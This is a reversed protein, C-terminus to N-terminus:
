PYANAHPKQARVTQGNGPRPTRTTPRESAVSAWPRARHTRLMQPPLRAVRALKRQDCVRTRPSHVPVQAFGCPHRVGCPRRGGAPNRQLMWPTITRTAEAPATPATSGSDPVATRLGVNQQLGECAATLNGRVSRPAPKRHAACPNRWQSEVRVCRLGCRMSFLGGLLACGRLNARRVNRLPIMCAGWAQSGPEVGLTRMYWGSRSGANGGPDTNVSTVVSTASPPTKAMLGRLCM